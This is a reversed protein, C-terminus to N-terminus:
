SMIEDSAETRVEEADEVGSSSDLDYIRYHVSDQALVCIARRGKRGNVELREPVWSVGAPFEHWTCSRCQEADSLDIKPDGEVDRVKDDNVATYQLGLPHVAL